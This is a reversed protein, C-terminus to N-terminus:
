GRGSQEPRRTPGPNRGTRAKTLKRRFTGLGSFAVKDGVALQDGIVAVIAKIAHKADRKNMATAEAVRAIVEPMKM